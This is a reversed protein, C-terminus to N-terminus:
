LCLARERGPSLKKRQVRAPNYSCRPGSVAWLPDAIRPGASLLSGCRHGGGWDQVLGQVGAFAQATRNEQRWTVSPWGQGLQAGEAWGWGTTATIM